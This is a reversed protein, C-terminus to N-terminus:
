KVKKLLIERSTQCMYIAAEIILMATTATTCSISAWFLTLLAKTADNLILFILIQPRESNSMWNFGGFLFPCLHEKLIKDLNSPHPNSNPAIDQM